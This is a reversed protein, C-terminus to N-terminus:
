VTDTKQMQGVESLVTGAPDMGTTVFPHEKTASDHGVRRRGRPSGGVTNGQGYFKGLLFLLTSQWRRRWPSKGVWANVGTDEANDPPNQIVSVPAKTTEIATYHKMQTHTHTQTPTHTRACGSDEKQM